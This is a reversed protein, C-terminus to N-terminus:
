SHVLHVTHVRHVAVFPLILDLTWRTWTTWRTWEGRGGAARCSCGQDVPVPPSPWCVPEGAGDDRCEFGSPCGTGCPWACLPSVEGEVTTCEGQACRPEGGPDCPGGLPSRDPVCISLDYDCSAYGPCWTHGRGCEETCVPGYPGELWCFGRECDDDSACLHGLEGPPGAVCRGDRCHMSVPCDRDSRRCSTSCVGESGTEVVCSGSRCDGDDACPEGLGRLWTAEDELSFCGGCDGDLLACGQDPGCGPHDPRCRVTCRSRGDGPDRCMLSACDLDDGCSAGVEGAGAAGPRCLGEGCSREQCYAGDWCEEERTPDCPGTCIREGEVEECAGTPCEDASECPEGPALCGEDVEGDCDNDVMDCYEYDGPVCGGERRLVPDMLWRMRDVRIVIGVNDAARSIVAIVQGRSDIVPGGSDGSGPFAVGELELWLSAISSVVMTGSLRLGSHGDEDLGYGVIKVESGLLDDPMRYAAMYVPADIPEDLVLLAIDDMSDDEFPGPRVIEVVHVNPNRVPAYGQHISWHNASTGEVCHNATLIVTPTIVSGSCSARHSELYVTGEEDLEPAGNFVPSRRSAPVQGDGPTCSWPALLLWALVSALLRPTDM